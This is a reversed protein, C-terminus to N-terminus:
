LRGSEKLLVQVDKRFRTEDLAGVYTQAVRGQRDVLITTPLGDMGYALQSMPATIAIPYPVHLTEVFHRVESPIENSSREDVSVGVVEFGDSQRERSLKALMPTEQWCPSCWSAWYNIAVVQGQHDSLRWVGGDILNLTLAPMSARQQVPRVGARHPLYFFWVFAIAIAVLGAGSYLVVRRSFFSDRM